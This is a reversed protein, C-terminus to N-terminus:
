LYEMRTSPQSPASLFGLHEPLCPLSIDYFHQRQCQCRMRHRSVFHYHSSQGYLFRM